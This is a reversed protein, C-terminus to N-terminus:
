EDIRRKKTQVAAPVYHSNITEVWGYCKTCLESYGKNSFGLTFEVFEKKSDKTKAQHLDFYEDKSDELLGAKVAFDAYACSYIRGYENANFPISCDDYYDELNKDSNDCELLGLNVWKEPKDYIFSIDREKLKNVIELSHNQLNWVDYSDGYDDIVMNMNHRQMLELLRDSPIISGNTVIEFRQGIRDRYINGIYEVLDCLYPWLQTEGGSIQFWRVFDVWEFFIDVEDKVENLTKIRNHHIEPTYALCNKCNLNCATSPYIATSDLWIKNKSYISYIRLYFNDKYDSTDDRPVFDDYYFFDKNKEYSRRLLRWEVQSAIEKNEISIIIIHTTDKKNFIQNPPLVPKGCFCKGQKGIDRDIFADVCDLFGLKNFINRGNNGAGYIYIDKGIFNRGFVDYEHGRDNWKM